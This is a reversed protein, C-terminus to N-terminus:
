THTLLSVLKYGYGCIIHKQYKNTYPENLNEKRNNESKLISEFGWLDHMTVKNKKWIKLNLMNEM